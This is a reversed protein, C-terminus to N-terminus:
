AEGTVGSQDLRAMDALLRAAAQVLPLAALAGTGQGLRMDLDLLATLELQELVLGHAPEDALHGAVWWQRAGPAFEEAILAAAGTVLGDLIVPTRRAAAQTLFGAMAAFDAGGVTRLLALPDPMVRRARRLADRIVTVKRMWRADDLGPGRGVVAVPEIGIIASAIVAAPTTSGVGMGGIVLLDAGGDTEEDAVARGAAVAEVTEDATLADEVDVAGSGRRVKHRSVAEGTDADVAMDVVRVSAGAAAALVNVAAVGDAFATMMQATVEAPYASVGKAAVGHDGAFVVVRPRQFLRPPNARQCAAVWAGLQELRGLSGAPKILQDQRAMAASRSEDDPPTIPPFEV